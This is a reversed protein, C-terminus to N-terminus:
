ALQKSKSGDTYCILGINDLSLDKTWESKDGIVIGINNNVLQSPIISDSPRLLTAEM